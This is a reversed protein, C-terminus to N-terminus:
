GGPNVKIFFLFVFGSQERIDSYEQFDVSVKITIAGFGLIPNSNITTEESGPINSIIGNTEKGIFISGGNLIIEWNVNNIESFDNNKITSKVKFLGGSILKIELLQELIHINIPDSWESLTSYVDKARVKVDYYGVETWEHSASVESGSTYPGIWGSNTGDGWNFLYFVDDGDIDTTSANFTYGQGLGGTDPGLLTPKEPPNSLIPGGIPVVSLPVLNTQSSIDLASRLGDEDSISYIINAGLNLATAELLINHSIAGIEYYWFGQYQSQGVNTDLFPIIIWSATTILIDGNEISDRIEERKDGQTIEAISHDSPSYQYVGSHNAAFIQYPYIGIASPLTRHRKNNINDFLYSYGYSSWILQSQEVISLPIDDWEEAIIRNNIAGELSMTNNIISPLNSEPLPDYTFDYPVSPHGLPMIIAPIENSPIGLEYLDEVYMGTTVTGLDLANADLYINQCVMGVESMGRMENEAINENWVLGFKIPSNYQGLHLYNGEIFLSLSHNEPIYKYTADSRIVYITTSYTNDPSYISRTGNETFGYAAWLITSLEEDSVSEGTFTRVSMRRCISEEILMDVSIPNPLPYYSMSIDNIIKKNLEGIVPAISMTIITIGVFFYLIKKM